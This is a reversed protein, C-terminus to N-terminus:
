RRTKTGTSPAPPDTNIEWALHPPASSLDWIGGSWGANTYHSSKNMEETILGTVKTKTPDTQANYGVGDLLMTKERDFFSNLVSGSNDGAVGGIATSGTVLGLAYCNSINMDNSGVVGGISTIGKVSGTAYSNTINGLNSGVLGGVMESGKVTGKAFTSNITGSLVSGVLGGTMQTGKVTCSSYCNEISVTDQMHGVLGGTKEGASVSGTTFSNKIVTSGKATGVLAGTYSGGKVNAKKLVVNEITANKTVGFLGVNESSSKDVKLGSITFGNGNFIGRFEDVNNGISEWNSYASLDIDNMLVYKGYPNNRVNNLDSASKILTYGAALAEDQTMPTVTSITTDPKLATGGIGPTVILNEPEGFLALGNFQTSNKIQYLQETLANAEAQMASREKEDYVGNAAQVSLDRIRNLINKMNSLAGEATNLFSIGDQTNKKAQTLGRIQTTMSTAVFYGAADDKASNVKYGTSMRELATDLMSTAKSLNRQVLLSSPNYNSSIIM